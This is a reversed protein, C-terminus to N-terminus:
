AMGHAQLPRKEGDGDALLHQFGIEPRRWQALDELELEADRDLTRALAHRCHAKATPLRALEAAAGADRRELGLADRVIAGARRDNKIPHEDRAIAETDGAFKVVLTRALLSSIFITTAMLCTGSVAVWTFIPLSGFVMSAVPMVHITDGYSSNAISSANRM